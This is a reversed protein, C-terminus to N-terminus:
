KNRNKREQEFIYRIIEERESNEIKTFMVRHEYFGPKNELPRQGLIKGILKYTHGLNKDGLHYDCIIQSDVDFAMNAVFRLGGGSIDVITSKYTPIEEYDFPIREEFRKNEIESLNRTEMDITCAYRYYERRQYKQLNTIKEIMLLYVNGNKYRETVKALCQFLGKSTIFHVDYQGNVPLLVLKTKEMPMLIEIHDEDVVEVVQSDFKKRKTSGDQQVIRDIAVLELKSGPLIYKKLELGSSKKEKM